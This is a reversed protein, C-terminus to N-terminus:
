VQPHIFDSLAIKHLAPSLHNPCQAGPLLPLLHLLQPCFWILPCALGAAAWPASGYPCWSIVPIPPFMTGLRESKWM